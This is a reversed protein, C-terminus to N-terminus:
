FKEIHIGLVTAEAVNDGECAEVDGPIGETIWASWDQLRQHLAVLFIESSDDM